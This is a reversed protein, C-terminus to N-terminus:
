SAPRYSHVGACLLSLETINQYEHGGVRKNYLLLNQENLIRLSQVHVLLVDYAYKLLITIEKSRQCDDPRDMCMRGDIGVADVDAIAYQQLHRTMFNFYIIHESPMFFPM